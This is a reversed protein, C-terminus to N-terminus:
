DNVLVLLSRCGKLFLSLPPSNLPHELAKKLGTEFSLSQTERPALLEGWNKKPIMLPLTKNGYPIFLTLM